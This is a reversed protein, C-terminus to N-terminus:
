LRLDQGIGFVIDPNKQVSGDPLINGSDRFYPFTFEIGRVLTQTIDSMSSIKDFSMEVERFRVTGDLTVSVNKPANLIDFYFEGYQHKLPKKVINSTSIGGDCDNLLVKFNESSYPVVIHNYSQGTETNTLTILVEVINAQDPMDVNYIRGYVSYTGDDYKTVLVPLEYKTGYDYCFITDRTINGNVFVEYNCSQSRYVVEQTDTAIKNTILDMKSCSALMLGLLLAAYVIKM